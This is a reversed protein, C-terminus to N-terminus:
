ARTKVYTNYSARLHEFHYIISYPHALFFFGFTLEHTPCTTFPVPDHRKHVHQPGHACWAAPKPRELCLIINNPPQITCHRKHPYLLITKLSVCRDRSHVAATIAYSHKTTVSCGRTCHVLAFM